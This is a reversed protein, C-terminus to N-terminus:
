IVFWLHGDSTSGVSGPTSNTVEYDLQVDDANVKVGKGAGINITNLGTAETVALLGSGGEIDSHITLTNASDDYSLDIGNGGVM